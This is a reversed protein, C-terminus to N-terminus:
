AQVAVVEQSRRGHQPLGASDLFDNDFFAPHIMVTVLELVSPPVLRSLAPCFDAQGPPVPVPIYLYRDRGPVHRRDRCTLQGPLQGM